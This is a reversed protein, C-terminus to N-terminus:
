AAPADPIGRDGHATSHVVVYPQESLEPGFGPHVGRRGDRHVTEFFYMLPYTTATYDAPVSASFGREDQSAKASRFAQSQDVHRYHLTVDALGEEAAADLRLVLDEGRVFAAPAEHRLSGGVFRAPAAVPRADVDGGGAAELEARLAAVDADIGAVRTSWHGHESSEPGFRLDDVYVGAVVTPIGAYAERALAYDDLAQVLHGPDRSEQWAAYATAARFKGAFFAGLRSLVELDVLTRRLTVDDPSGEAATRVAGLAPAADDVMRQLWGAVELPTYRGSQTGGALDAVFEDIGYFMTPDFPSVTGWVPPAVTDHAYHAPDVDQSLPLNVYMEPWNGNNSGGVGHVVTVLPLVRSLPSLAEEVSTALDGYEARLFRQWVEPRTDPNHLMRGWLLYTYAHKRWERGGLQLAPDAYPDRGGKRGSGKRGKFFLPECFDVGRSGAFTSLRGYGSAIAPDGWLLLKQTGPWVRFMLDVSRDEALFDGYGYRTFRRSFETIGRMEHGPPIPKAAEQPRISTQHYPLGMHEAWYKASLVPRLGPKAVADLLAQDVGKAHMDIELPRGSSSAAAFVKDWFVEHQFDHIGGEYHVRFTLGEVEPVAELLQGLAAASYDAHTEPTLGTIPYRHVSDRGYDYAHNWLGLQFSMGRRRTEAAIHQLSALNRAREGADVGEARVDWGPVELLFPYAFCLYNDTAGHPDAGYNYQMGLALHFRNFRSVALWDLYEAWFGRDHFWGLDEDVSSFSRVIGRVPVAPEEATGVTDRVATRLDAGARVQAALETLAYAFGRGGGARLVAAGGDAEVRYAEDPSEDLELRLLDEPGPETGSGLRGGRAAVADTLQGAAWAVVPDAALPAPLHLHDSSTPAPM